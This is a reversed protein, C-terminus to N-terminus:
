PTLLKRPQKLYLWLALLFTVILVGWIGLVVGLWHQWQWFVDLYFGGVSAGLYYFFLYLASASAKAGQAHRGVWAVAVSHALFFGFCSIFFGCVILFIQTNLTVLAGMAMIAIGIMMVIPPALHQTIKGSVSAGFTGSLYTLFLSGILASSFGYPPEALRYAVYSFQNVFVMFNLGGILFAIVLVPRKLHSIMGLFMTKLALEKAEFCKSSPLWFLVFSTCLVGLGAMVGFMAQWGFYDTVVGSILRGGIGGLTNAGIYLGAALAFAKPSFEEAMYALAIVPLGALFCGQLARLVVMTSFSEVFALLLTILTVCFMTVVILVKRGLADSLPGLFLLSMCLTTTVISFSLGAELTSVGFEQSLLPLLPQTTYISAFIFFSGLCLAFTAQWFDRSDSSLQKLNQYQM